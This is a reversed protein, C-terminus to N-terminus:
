KNELSTTLKHIKACAQNIFAMDNGVLFMTAGLLRLEDLQFRNVPSCGLMIRVKYEHCKASLLEVADRIEPTKMSYDVECGCSLAFDAPGFHVADIGPTSLIADIHDFFEVHEAMPIIKCRKNEEQTYNAWQFDRSAYIASRVSGDGGRRGLPPFKVAEIIEAVQSASRVQPVIIGDAGMELTKRLSVPNSDPVRVLASINAARATLILRELTADINTVSHETDIFVFDLGWNAAIEIVAPSASYVNIGFVDHDLNLFNKLYM